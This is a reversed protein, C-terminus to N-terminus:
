MLLSRGVGTARKGGTAVFRGGPRLAAIAREVAQASTLIDHTYFCLVADVSSPALAVEEANAEILTINRWSHRLIKAQARALMDPSLDVGLIRGPAGAHQELLAFSLGTGCGLDLVTEGVSLSLNAVAQVRLQQCPRDLLDYGHVNRRYKRRIQD